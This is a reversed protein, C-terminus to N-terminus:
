LGSSLGVRVRLEGMIFGGDPGLATWSMFAVGNCGVLEGAKEAAVLANLSRQADEYLIRGAATVKEAKPLRVKIGQEPTDPTCRAISVVFTGARMTHSASTRLPDISEAAVNGGDAGSSTEMWVALLECDLAPPGAPIVRRDPLSGGHHAIVADLIVQCTDFIRTPPPAM